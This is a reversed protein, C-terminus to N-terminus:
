STFKARKSHQENNQVAEVPHFLSKSFAFYFNILYVRPTNKVKFIALDGRKIGVEDRTTPRKFIGFNETFIEEMRYIYSRAM